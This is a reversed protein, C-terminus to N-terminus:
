DKTRAEQETHGNLEDELIMREAFPRTDNLCADLGDTQECHGGIEIAVIQQLEDRGALADNLM